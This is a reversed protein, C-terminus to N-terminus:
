DLDSFGVFLKKNKITLFLDINFPKYEVKPLQGMFHNGHKTLNFDGFYTFKGKKKIELKALITPDFIALDVLKMKDDFIYLSLKGTEGRVLEAKYQIKAHNGKGADAHDVIPATVGGFKGGEKLEGHGGEHAVLFGFNLILGFSLVKFLKKM